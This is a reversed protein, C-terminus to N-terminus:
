GVETLGAFPDTITEIYTSAGSRILNQFRGTTQSYKVAPITWQGAFCWAVPTAYSHVVYVKEGANRATDVAIRLQQVWEQPLRGTEPLYDYRAAKGSNSTFDSRSAVFQPVQRNTINKNM